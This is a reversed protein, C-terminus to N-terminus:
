LMQQLEDSIHSKCSALDLAGSFFHDQQSLQKMPLCFESIQRSFFLPLYFNMRGVFIRVCFFLYFLPDVQWGLVGRGAVCVDM